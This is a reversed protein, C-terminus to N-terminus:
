KKNEQKNETKKDNKRLFKKINLNAIEIKLERAKKAIEIKKKKGIKGLTVIQNKGINKLEEINKVFVPTKGNIKGKISKETSYGTSVTAPKGRRKERMKNDRGTPRRWIQKKKRKKGLKSLRVSTRRLFKPRKREAM